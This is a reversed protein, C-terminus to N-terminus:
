RATILNFHSRDPTYLSDLTEACMRRLDSGGMLTEAKYFRSKYSFDALSALSEPRFCGARFYTLESHGATPATLGALDAPLTYECYQKAQSHKTYQCM